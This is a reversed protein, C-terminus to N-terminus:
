KKLLFLLGGLLFVLGFIYNLNAINKTENLEEEVEGEITFNYTEYIQNNLLLDLRYEGATNVVIEGTVEKGNLLAQGSVIFSITEYVGLDLLGNVKPAITLGLNFSMGNVGYVTFTYTGTEYIEESNYINGNLTMTTGDSYLRIPDTVLLGDVFNEEDDACTYQITPLITIEESYQYENNGEILLTYYGPFIITDGSEYKSGNLYLDGLSTVSVPGIYMGNYCEGFISIEPNVTIKYSYEYSNNKIKIAYEGPYSIRIRDVLRNDIYADGQYNVSYYGWYENLIEIKSVKQLRNDYIIESKSYGLILCDNHNNYTIPKKEVITQSIVEGYTNYKILLIDQFIPFQYEGTKGYRECAIVFESNGVDALYVFQESGANDYEVRKLVEDTFKDRIILLGDLDSNLVSGYEVVITELAYEGSLSDTEVEVTEIPMVVKLLCLFIYLFRM